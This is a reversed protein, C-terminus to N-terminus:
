EVDSLLLYVKLELGGVIVAIVPASLDVLFSLILKYFDSLWMFNLM